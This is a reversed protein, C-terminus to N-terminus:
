SKDKKISKDEGNVNLTVWENMKENKREKIWVVNKIRNWLLFLLFRGKDQECKKRDNQAFSTNLSKKQSFNQHKFILNFTKFTQAGSLTYSQHILVLFIAGWYRM